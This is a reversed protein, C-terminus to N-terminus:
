SGPRRRPGPAGDPRPGPGMGRVRENLEMRLVLFQAQQRADLFEALAEMERRELAQERARIGNMRNLLRQFEPAPTAPDRVAQVLDMRLQRSEMALSRRNEAGQRLVTEMRERQASELGLERSVEAMFRQRVQQELQARRQIMADHPQRDGPPIQGEAPAVALLLALGLALCGGARSM